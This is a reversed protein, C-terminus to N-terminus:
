KSFIFTITARAGWGQPGGPISSVSYRPGISYSVPQNGTMVLKSISGNIQNATRRADYNFTSETDLGFIWNSSTTYSGFPQYYFNNVTGSSSSGSVAWSQVLLLGLTWPGVQTLGIGTVGAGTQTPGFNGSSGSPTILYPGVGWILSSTPKPSYFMEVQINGMGVGTFGNVNNLWQATVIPRIILNDGGPLNVPYVPEIVVSQGSGVDNSGMGRNFNYQIPVAVLDAVPNTLKKAVSVAEETDVVAGYLFSSSILLNSFTLLKIWYKKKILM